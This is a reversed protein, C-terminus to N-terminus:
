PMLEFLMSVHISGIASLVLYVWDFKPGHFCFTNAFTFIFIIIVIIIVIIIIIIIIVVSAVCFNLGLSVLGTHTVWVNFLM